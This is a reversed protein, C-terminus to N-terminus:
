LASSTVSAGFDAITLQTAPYIDDLAEEGHIVAADSVAGEVVKDKPISTVSFMGRRAAALATTGKPIFAKATLVPVDANASKVSNRYHALYVLLLVTALVLAGVGAVVTRRPTGLM